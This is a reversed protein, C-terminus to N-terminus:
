WGYSSGAPLSGGDPTGIRMMYLRNAPIGGPADACAADDTAGEWFVELEGDVVEYLVFEMGPTWCPDITFPVVGIGEATAFIFYDVTDTGGLEGSVTWSGVVDVTCLDVAQAPTDNPEHDPEIIQVTTEACPTPLQGAGGTSGAPGATSDGEVAGDDGPAGTTGPASTGTAATTESSAGGDGSGDDGCGLLQLSLMVACALVRM